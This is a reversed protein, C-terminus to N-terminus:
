RSGLIGRAPAQHAAIIRGIKGADAANTNYFM